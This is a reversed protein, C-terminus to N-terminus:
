KGKRKMARIIAKTEADVRHSETIKQLAKHFTFDDLTNDQLYRQTTEPAKIYCISVAWAVAMKVYYGDHRIEDLRQLVSHIYAEDIYFNLLMVVGFRLEYEQESRLYPQLFDWVRAQNTKTFTLGICFSDCVSWNDIKPVFDAIYRLKEEVDAKVYGIVMGQLMIEEFYESRAHELYARWDGKAMTKAMKRLFPLRIGMVNHINPLLSSAFKQYSPEAMEILQDRITREV